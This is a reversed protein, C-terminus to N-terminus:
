QMEDLNQDKSQDHFILIHQDKRKASCQIFTKPSLELQFNVPAPLFAVTITSRHICLPLTEHPLECHIQPLIKDFSQLLLYIVM